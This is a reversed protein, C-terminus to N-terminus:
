PLTVRGVGGVPGTAAFGAAARRGSWGATSAVVSEPQRRVMVVCIAVLVVDDMGVVGFVCRRKSASGESPGALSLPPSSALEDGVSRGKESVDTMTLAHGDIWPRLRAVAM